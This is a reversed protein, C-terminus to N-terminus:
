EGGGLNPPQPAAQSTLPGPNLLWHPGQCAAHGQCPIGKPVKAETETGLAEVTKLTSLSMHPDSGWAEVCWPHWATPTPAPFWPAGDAGM